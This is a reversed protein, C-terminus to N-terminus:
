LSIGDRSTHGTRSVRFSPLISLFSSRSSRVKPNELDGPSFRVLFPDAPPKDDLVVPIDLEPDFAHVVTTASHVSQSDAPVAM